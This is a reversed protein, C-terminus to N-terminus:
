ASAANEDAGDAEAATEAAATTDAEVDDAGGLLEGGLLDSLDVVGNTTALRERITSLTTADAGELAAVAGAFLHETLVLAFGVSEAAVRLSNSYQQKRIQPDLLRHGTVVVLGRAALAREELLADLRARLAYHPGMEVQDRTAAVELYLELGDAALILDGDSTETVEYGLALACATVGRRQAQAGGVWLVERLVAVADRANRASDFEGQALALASEAHELAEQRDDLRPVTTKAVWSPTIEEEVDLRDRFAQVVADGERQLLWRAGAERPGPTFIVSGNLVPIEVGVAAGGASRAFVHADTPFGQARENIHARYRLERGSAEILGVFPHHYDTISLNPGEGGVITAADWSMGEPAPLFWYRDLGQFGAINTIQEVPAPIVAIPIGLELARVFEERRRHLVDAIGAFGDVSAGNVIPIDNHTLYAGAAEAAERITESMAHADVLIGDFDYINPANFISANHLERNQMRHSISLVQM